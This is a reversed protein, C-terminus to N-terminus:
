DRGLEARAHWAEVLEGAADVDDGWAVVGHEVLAFYRAEPQHELFREIEAVSESTGAPFFRETSPIGLGVSADLADRDHLHFIAGAFTQQGYVTGHVFADRSPEHEGYYEVKLSDDDDRGILTVEVWDEPGIHGLEVGTRTIIFGNETRISLNGSGGPTIGLRDLRKGWTALAALRPDNRHGQEMPGIRIARVKM